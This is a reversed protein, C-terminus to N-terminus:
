DLEVISQEIHEKDILMKDKKKILDTYEQNAQDSM